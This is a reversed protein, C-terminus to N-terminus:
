PVLAAADDAGADSRAAPKARIRRLQARGVDRVQADACRQIPSYRPNGSNEKHPENDARSYCCILSWRPQDSTNAESRHLTNGHFFLATGPEAEVYVLEHRKAAAEVHEVQAGRQERGEFRDHNLRGIKHSGRLLQLCGNARTARDVAIMCSAMNPYLFVDNYWYGYDQHWEWAGGVRPEKLMMKHHIHYVEGGLLAQMSDMIRHCRAIASYMDDTLRTRTSLRSARGAADRMGRANVLAEDSRAVQLLLDMEEADFLGPMLVYGDDAFARIQQTTLSFDNM